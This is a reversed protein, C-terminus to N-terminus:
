EESTLTAEEETNRRYQFDVVNVIGDDLTGILVENSMIALRIVGERTQNDLVLRVPLMSDLLENSIELEGGLRYVALALLKVPDLPQTM